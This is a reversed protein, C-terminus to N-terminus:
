NQKVPFSVSALTSLFKALKGLTVQVTLVPNFCLGQFTAVDMVMRNWVHAHTGAPM